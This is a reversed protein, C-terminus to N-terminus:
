EEKLYYNSSFFDFNSLGTLKFSEVCKKSNISNYISATGSSRKIVLWYKLPVADMVFQDNTSMILQIQTGDVKSMLREILQSSRSYDLGEGIDDILICSPLRAMLAYNLQIFLSLARFMGSSILSHPTIAALDTEKLQIGNIITRNSNAQFHVLSQISIDALEYGCFRMDEIIRQVYDNGYNLQGNRFLAVVKNSHKLNLKDLDFVSVALCDQGMPTGFRFIKASKGWQYFSELFPHQIPDRRNVVALEDPPPQFDIADHLKEAWIKGTGNASRQLLIKQNQQVEEAIVKSDNFSLRYTIEEGQNDFVAIFNGSHETLRQEGALLSTLTAIANLTRTKGTANKGVILNIENLTCNELRWEEPKGNYETYQISNLKM